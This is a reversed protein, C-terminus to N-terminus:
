SSSVRYRHGSKQEKNGKGCRLVGTEGESMMDKAFPLQLSGYGAFVAISLEDRKEECRPDPTLSIYIYPCV